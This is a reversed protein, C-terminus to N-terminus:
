ALFWELYQREEAETLPDLDALIKAPDVYTNQDAWATTSPQLKRTTRTDITVRVVTTNWTRPLVMRGATPNKREVEREEDTARRGHLTASHTTLTPPCDSTM